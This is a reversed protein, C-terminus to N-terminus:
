DIGRRILLNELYAQRSSLDAIEKELRSITKRMRDSQRLCHRAYNFGRKVDQAIQTLPDPPIPPCFSDIERRLDDRSM